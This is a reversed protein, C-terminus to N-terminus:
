YYSYSFGFTIVFVVSHLVAFYQLRVRSSSTPTGDGSPEGHDSLQQAVQLLGVGSTM